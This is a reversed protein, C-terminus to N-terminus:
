QQEARAARAGRARVRRVVVQGLGVAGPRRRDAPADAAADAAARPRRGAARRRPPRGRGGSRREAGGRRVHLGRGPRRRGGAGRGRPRGLRAPRRLRRDDRQRADRVPQQGGGALRDRIRARERGRVAAVAAPPQPAGIQPRRHVGGALGRHDTRRCAAGADARRRRRGGVPLRARVAAAPRRADGAAPSGALSRVDAAFAALLNGFVPGSRLRYRATLLTPVVDDEQHCLAQLPQLTEARALVVPAQGYLAALPDGPPEATKTKPETAM